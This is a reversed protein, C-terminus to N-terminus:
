SQSLKSWVQHVPEQHLAVLFWYSSHGSLWRQGPDEAPPWYGPYHVQKISLVQAHHTYSWILTEIRPGTFVKAWKM